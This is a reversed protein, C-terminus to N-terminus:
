DEEESTVKGRRNDERYMNIFSEFDAINDFHAIYGLTAASRVVIVKTGGRLSVLTVKYGEIYWDTM